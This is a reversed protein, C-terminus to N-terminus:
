SRAAMGFQATTLTKGGRAVRVTVDWRGAMLLEGSGRYEGRGAAALTVTDKMAPMNMSPMPPMFLVVSVDADTVPNGAADRVTVILSLSGTRPPDPDTRFTVAFASADHEMPSDSEAPAEYGGLAGRLQSESDLFFTASAAVRDGHELGSVIEVNGNARQGAQVQRPTFRGQGEAVFVLSQTGTEVLADAPVVLVDSEPGKLMVTALMNPKLLGGPNALAIRTRITRTQPEVVQAIYSVKGAFSRGPYAPVAIAAPTGVRLYQLDREYVDAEVWVTSLDAVKFLPQGALVRMGQVAMKEVVVGGVPSRFTITETARRTTDLRDIDAPTMDLRLLRDRAADVLRQAYQRLQPRSDNESSLGRLALLYENQTAVLDPSYLTFLAEGKRVVRGTYDARLERIWGDVRTNIEAQRTEDYTVTGTARIEPALHAHTAEVTRVGLLQQRRLDLTVPARPDHADTDDEGASASLRDGSSPRFPPLQMAVAVAVAAALLIAAVFLIRRTLM